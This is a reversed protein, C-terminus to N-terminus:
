RTWTRELMQGIRARVQIGLPERTLFFWLLGAGYVVGGCSLEVLLGVISSSPLLHELLLLAGVLPACLTLPLKYTEALFRTLRVELVRCIYVPLFFMYTASIAITTGLAVGVIGLHRALFISLGVKVVGAVVGVIALAGHREVGFLIRRSGEQIWKLALPIVLLILVSYSSVYSTGVWLRIIPKGLVVLMAVFPLTVLACARNGTILIQRLRDKNGLAEFHSTMPLFISALGDVFRGPYSTLKSGVSYFTIAAPSLFMGIILADSEWRLRGAIDIAFTKLGYQGTKRFTGWDVFQRGWEVDLARLVLAVYALGRVMALGVTIGAVTLLGLGYELAVIIFAARLVATAVSVLNIPLFKQLGELTAEFIVLPFGLAIAAGVMLFLLRASMLFAPSVRFISDVYYAGVATVLLLILAVIGYMFLTTNLVRNVNERDGTAVFKSVYRVVSSRVGFGFLGYYGTVSFALLYLGFATDGLRHLIFPLMFFGIVTQVALCFWSSGVNKLAEIKLSM